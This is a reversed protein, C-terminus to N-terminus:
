DKKKDKERETKVFCFDKDCFLIFGVIFIIQIMSFLCWIAGQEMLNDTFITSLFPGSFMLAAGYIPLLKIKEEFVFPLIFFPVFMLFFHLFMAPLFYSPSAFPISWALHRKGSFTCLDKGRVWETSLGCVSNWGNQNGKEDYGTLFGDTNENIFLGFLGFIHRVLLFVGGVLCLYRILTLLKKDGKPFNVVAGSIILHCFYPQFSIHLIALFTMVKNATTSCEDIFFYQMFQLFEMLFFYFVGRTLMRNKTKWYVFITGLIGLISIGLSTPQNFCM